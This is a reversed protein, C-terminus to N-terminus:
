GTEEIQRLAAQMILADAPALEERKALRARSLRSAFAARPLAIGNRPLAGHGMNKLKTRMGVLTERAQLLHRLQRVRESPVPVSPLYDLKLFRALASADAKDTKKKSKAIISFQYTDVLVVRAVQPRVQDYFYYVNATVEVAVQDEPELHAVFRTIGAKTLPYTQTRTTQDDALFCVVFNTKHLDVGIHRM